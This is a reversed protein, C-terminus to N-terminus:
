CACDFSVPDCDRRSNYVGTGEPNLLGRWDLQETAGSPRYKHFGKYYECYGMALQVSPYEGPSERPYWYKRM